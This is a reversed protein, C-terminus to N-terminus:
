FDSFMALTCLGGKRRISSKVKTRKKSSLRLIADSTNTLFPWDSRNPNSSKWNVLLNVFQNIM